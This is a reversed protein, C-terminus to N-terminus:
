VAEAELISGGSHVYRTILGDVLWSAKRQRRERKWISIATNWTTKQVSVNIQMKKGSGKEPGTNKRAGGRGDKKIMSKSSM